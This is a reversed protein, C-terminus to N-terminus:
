ENNVWKLEYFKIFNNTNIVKLPLVDDITLKKLSNRASAFCNHFDKQEQKTWDQVPKIVENITLTQRYEHYFISDFKYSEQFCHHNAWTHFDNVKEVKKELGLKEIMTRAVFSSMSEGTFTSRSKLALILKHPLNLMQHQNHTKARPM